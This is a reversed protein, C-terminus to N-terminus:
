IIGRENFSYPQENGIIVHDLLRVGVLELAAKLRFTIQKDAASPQTKGSPHNHGLIVAAANCALCAKVVERPYVATEDITGRFLVDFKILRHQSDLFAGAFVEHELGGLREQFLMQALRPHSLSIKGTTAQRNIITAAAKIIQRETLPKTVRYRGPKEAVFGPISAAPLCKQRTTHAPKIPNPM